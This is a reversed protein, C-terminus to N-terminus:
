EDRLEVEPYLSSEQPLPRVAVPYPASRSHRRQRSSRGASSPLTSDQARASPSVMVFSVQGPFKGRIACEDDTM